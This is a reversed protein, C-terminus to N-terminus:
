HSYHDFSRIYELATQYCFQYQDETQVMAPRQTRLTRVTEFLNLFGENQLRELIISLAIFVGTRGVGVSCLVTIPGEIGFKQKTKHVEAIFNIFSDGSKPKGQEPWNMYHFQRIVRSYSPSRSDTVTFERLIYNFTTDYEQNLTIRYPGYDGYREAPWYQTCKERGMEKLKTLMVVIGSNHEILMRWMDEVTDPLPSQTAIYGNRQRYGDCFSANIYDSGDVGAIPELCVRTSEYPLINMLRNKHKNVPLNASTFKQGGYKITALRKFELELGTGGENPSVQMLKHIYDTLKSVPIETDASVIAEFVADHIFMYQDETQVIYNRQARLCTVHGYIDVTNEVKTREIMSDIVIFCGTRGVGASCLVIMPGADTPNSIKIRRLFMLFPTPHDPVGHDPWATFQFQRVERIQNGYQLRFTRITYYALEEVDCSTITISHYTVSDRSPWYQVCKVRGREELQTMMVITRSKQEWVMRWFDGVTNPLPGQTAIYQNPKNYGDCYNANIYDSGPIGDIQNLVVRSHDYAVVNGYRNKPRNYDMFSHEWTFQQGPEVSEYEDKLNNDMKLAEIHEALENVPVPPHNLMVRSQYSMNRRNVPEIPVASYIQNMMQDPLLRITTENIQNTKLAQRQKKYFISVILALVLVMCLAGGLIWRMRRYSDNNLHSHQIEPKQQQLSIIQSIPSSTYIYEPHEVVARVFVYYQQHLNLERNLFGEYSKNDGLVFRRTMKSKSFKATIYPGHENKTSWKILDPTLYSDPNLSPMDSPVVVVYYYGIPGFEESASPLFLEFERGNSSPSKPEPETMAKPAAVPTTIHVTIPPRFAGGPPVATVNIRYKTFPKLEGIDISTQTTNITTPEQSFTQRVGQSDIFHKEPADYVIMYKAPTMELPPKWFVKVSQTTLDSTKLDYPVENPVTRFRVPGSLKGSFKSGVVFVRLEYNEDKILNSIIVSNTLSVNKVMWKEYDINQLFQNSSQNYYIRYGIIDFYATSDWWVMASTYSIAMARVNTPPPPSDKPTQFNIPDSYSGFSNKSKARVRFTYETNESLDNFAWRNVDPIDIKTSNSSGLKGFYIEYGVLSAGNKIEPASWSITVDTPSTLIYRLDTPPSELLPELSVTLTSPSSSVFGKSNTVLCQYEGKDEDTVNHVKLTGGSVTLRKDYDSFELPVLNRLWFFSPQPNAEANCSLIAVGGVVVTQHSIPHATIRPFGEPIDTENVARVVVHSRLTLGPDIDSTCEYLGGDRENKLTDFILISSTKHKINPVRKKKFIQGDKTWNFKVQRDSADQVECILILTSKEVAVANHPFLSIKPELKTKDENGAVFTSSLDSSQAQASTNQVIHSSFNTFLLLLISLTKLGIRLNAENQSIFSIAKTDRGAQKICLLHSM